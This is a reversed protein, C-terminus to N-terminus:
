SHAVTEDPQSRAQSRGPSPKRGSTGAPRETSAASRKSNTCHHAAQAGLPPELREDRPRALPRRQNEAPVLPARGLDCSVRTLHEFAQCPRAHLGSVDQRHERRGRELADSQDMGDEIPADDQQRQVRPQGFGLLAEREAHAARTEEDHRRGCILGESKTERALNAAPEESEAREALSRHHRLEPGGRGLVRPREGLATSPTEGLASSEDDPGRTRTPLRLARHEAEVVQSRACRSRRAQQPTARRIAPQDTHREKMNSAQRNQDPRGPAPRTNEQLVPEIRDRDRPGKLLLADCM